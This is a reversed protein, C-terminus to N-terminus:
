RTFTSNLHHLLNGLINPEKEFTSKFYFVQNVETSFYGIEDFTNRDYVKNDKACHLYEVGEQLIITTEISEEDDDDDDEEKIAEVTLEKVPEVM